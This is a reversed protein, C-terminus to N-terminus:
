QLVQNFRPARANAFLPFIPGGPPGPLFISAVFDAMPRAFTTTITDNTKAIVIKKAILMPRGEEDNDDCSSPACVPPFSFCTKASRLELVFFFLLLLLSALSLLTLLSMESSDLETADAGKNM